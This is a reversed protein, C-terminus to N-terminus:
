EAAKANDAAIQEKSRRVRPTGPVLEFVERAAIDNVLRRVAADSRENVNPLICGEGKYIVILDPCDVRAALARQIEGAAQAKAAALDAIAQAEEISVTIPYVKDSRSCKIKVDVTLSEHESM